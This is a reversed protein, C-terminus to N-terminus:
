NMKWYDMVKKNMGMTFPRDVKYNSANFRKQVDDGIDKYVDETKIDVIFSVYRETAYNLRKNINQNLTSMGFNM